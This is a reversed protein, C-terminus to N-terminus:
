AGDHRGAPLTPGRVGAALGYISTRVWTIELLTAALNFQYFPSVIIRPARDREDVPLGRSQRATKGGSASFVGATGALYWHNWQHDAMSQQYERGVERQRVELLM